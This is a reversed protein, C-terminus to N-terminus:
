FYNYEKGTNADFVTMYQSSPSVRYAVSALCRLLHHIATGNDKFPYSKQHEVWNPNAVIKSLATIKVVVTDQTDKMKFPSSVWPEISEFPQDFLYQGSPCWVGQSSHNPCYYVKSIKFNSEDQIFDNISDPDDIDFEDFSSFSKFHLVNASACPNYIELPLNAIVWKGCQNCEQHYDSNTNSLDFDSETRLYDLLDNSCVSCVILSENSGEKPLSLTYIPFSNTSGKPLWHSTHCEPCEEFKAQSADIYISEHEVYYLNHNENHLYSETNECYTFNEEFCDSCYTEDDIEHSSYEEPDYSNECSVCFFTDPSEDSTFLNLQKHQQQAIKTKDLSEAEFQNFSEQNQSSANYSTSFIQFIRKVPIEIDQRAFANILKPHNSDYYYSNYTGLLAMAFTLPEGDPYHRDQDDLGKVLVPIWLDPDLTWDIGEQQSKEEWRLPDIVYDPKNNKAYFRPGDTESMNADNYTEIGSCREILKQLKVNFSLNSWDEKHYLCIWGVGNGRYGECNTNPLNIHYLVSNSSTIPYPSYFMRAGFLNGDILDAIWIRYPQAVYYSIAHADGEHSGWNIYSMQPAHQYAIQTHNGASRISLVGTGSIPMLGTDFLAQSSINKYFSTIDKDTVHDLNFSNVTSRAVFNGEIQEISYKINNSM